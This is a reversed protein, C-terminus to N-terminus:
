KKAKELIAKCEAEPNTSLIHPDIAVASSYAAIAASVDGKLCLFDGKTAHIYAYGPRAEIAQDVKTLAGDIDGKAHLARAWNTLANAYNSTRDVARRFDEIADDYAGRDYRRLGRLNYAWDRDRKAKDTLCINIFGDVDNHGPEDLLMAALACPRLLGTLARAGEKIAADVSREPRSEIARPDPGDIRVTMRYQTLGDSHDVVIEGGIHQEPQGLFRRVTAVVVALSIGSGPVTITTLSSPGGASAAGSRDKSANTDREIKRTHDILRAAVVDGAYGLDAVQKPVSIPDMVPATNWLELVAGVFFVLGVAMVLIDVFWKRLPTVLALFALSARGLMKVGSWGLWGPRTRWLEKTRSWGLWDPRARWLEKTRSWVQSGTWTKM